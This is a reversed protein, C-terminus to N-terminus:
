RKIDGHVKTFPVEAINLACVKGSGLLCSM